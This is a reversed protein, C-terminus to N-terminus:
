LKEPLSHRLASFVGCGLALVIVSALAVLGISLASPLRGELLILRQAEILHAMPNAQYLPKFAHPVQRQRYFIPTLWFGLTVVVGVLQRVDKFFLQLPALMLGLGAVLVVQILLLVPLLLSQPTVGTTLALAVFLIPISILYDAFDVLVAVLPLLMTPFGPRVVLNRHDELSSTGLRLGGSFQSWALIGVLLFVPYNPVSLPIVRTFLFQTVGLQLLAPTLAWLWGLVSGRYRVARERRVLHFTVDKLYAIRARDPRKVPLGPAVRVRRGTESRTRSLVDSDLGNV